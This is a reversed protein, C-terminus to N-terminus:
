GQWFENLTGLHRADNAPSFGQGVHMILALRAAPDPVRGVQPDPLEGLTWSPCFRRASASTASSSTPRRRRSRLRRRGAHRAASPGKWRIRSSSGPKVQELWVLAPLAATEPGESSVLACAVIDLDGDGDMDAAQARHVGAMNALNHEVFPYTGRNELLQIGHYPKLIQDDFTDGHTMLVDLDGDKDTDM